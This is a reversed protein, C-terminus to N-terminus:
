YIRAYINYEYYLLYTQVVSTYAFKHGIYIMYANHMELLVGNGYETILNSEIFHLINRTFNRTKYIVNVM